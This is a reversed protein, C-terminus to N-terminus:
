VEVYNERFTSWEIKRRRVERGDSTLSAVVIITRHLSASFECVRVRTGTARQVYEEGVTPFRVTM